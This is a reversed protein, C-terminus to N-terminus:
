NTVITLRYKILSSYTKTCQYVRGGERDRGGERRRDTGGERGGERREKRGEKRGKKRRGELIELRVFYKFTIYTYLISFM